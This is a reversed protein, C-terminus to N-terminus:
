KKRTKRGPTIHDNNMYTKVRHCSPCYTKLNKPSNNHPNGDVHDVQLVSRGDVTSLKVPFTCKYGLHGDRNDCKDKLYKRYRHTSRKYEAVTMGRKAAANTTIYQSYEAVTMGLKEAVSSIRKKNYESYTIGQKEAAARHRCASCKWQTDVHEKGCEPCIRLILGTQKNDSM